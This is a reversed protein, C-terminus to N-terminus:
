NNSQDTKSQDTKNKKKKNPIYISVQNDKYKGSDVSKKTLDNGKWNDDMPNDSPEDSTNTENNLPTYNYASPVSTTNYLLESVPINHSVVSNYPLPGCDTFTGTASSYCPYQSTFPPHSYLLNNSSLLPYLSTDLGSNFNISIVQQNTDDKDDEKHENDILMKYKENPIQTINSDKIQIGSADVEFKWNYPCYDVCKSEKNDSPCVQYYNGSPDKEIKGCAKSKNNKPPTCHKLDNFCDKANSVLGEILSHKYNFFLNYLIILILIIFLYRSNKQSIM